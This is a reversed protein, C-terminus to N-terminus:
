SKFPLYASIFNWSQIFIDKVSSAFSKPSTDVYETNAMLHSLEDLTTRVNVPLYKFITSADGKKNISVWNIFDDFALVYGNVLPTAIKDGAEINIMNRLYNVAENNKISQNLQFIIYFYVGLLIKLNKDERLQTYEKRLGAKFRSPLVSISDSETSMINTKKYNGLKEAIAKILELYNLSEASLTDKVNFFTPASNNSKPFESVKIDIHLSSILLKQYAPPNYSM